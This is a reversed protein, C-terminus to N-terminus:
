LIDRKVRPSNDSDNIIDKKVKEKAKQSSDAVSQRMVAKCQNHLPVNFLCPNYSPFCLAHTIWTLFSQKSPFFRPFKLSNENKARDM